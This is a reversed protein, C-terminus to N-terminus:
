RDPFLGKVIYTGASLNLRVKGNGIARKFAETSDTKGTPDAGFDDVNVVRKIKRDLKSFERDLRDKLTAAIEGDM